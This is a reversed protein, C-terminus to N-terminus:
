GNRRAPRELMRVGYPGLEVRDAVAEGSLLDRYPAGDLAVGTPGATFNMLFVYDREGDTRLRATVGAPLDAELARPLGVALRGYFADLFAQETKPALYYAMGRGFRNATLAP